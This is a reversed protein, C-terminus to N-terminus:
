SDDSVESEGLWICDVSESYYGNSSGCWRITVDGKTTRLRYFTWTESDCRDPPAPEGDKTDSVSTEALVVLASTLDSLDGCIDEISVSECCDQSHYMELTGFRTQFLVRDDSGQESKRTVSDLVLGQLSELSDPSEVNNHIWLDHLFAADDSLSQFAIPDAAHHSRFRRAEAAPSIKTNSM